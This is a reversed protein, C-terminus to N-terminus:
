ELIQEDHAKRLRELESEYELKTKALLDQLTLLENEFGGADSAALKKYTAFESKLEHFSKKWKELESELREVLNQYKETEEKFRISLHDYMSTKELLDRNISQIDKDM